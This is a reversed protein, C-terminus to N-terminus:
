QPAPSQNTSSSVSASLRRTHTSFGDHYGPRCLDADRRRTEERDRREPWPIIARRRRARPRRLTRTQAVSGPPVRCEGMRASGRHIASRTPSPNLTLPTGGATASPRTGFLPTANWSSSRWVVVPRCGPFMRTKLYTDGQHLVGWRANQAPPANTRRGQSSRLPV